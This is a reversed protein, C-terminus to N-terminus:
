NLVISKIIAEFNQYDTASLEEQNLNLRVWHVLQGQQFYFNLEPGNFDFQGRAAKPFVIYTGTLKGFAKNEEVSGPRDSSSIFEKLPLNESNPQIFWDLNKDSYVIHVIDLGPNSGESLNGGPEYQFSFSYKNVARYTPWSSTDVASAQDSFKFTSLIQDLTQRNNVSGTFSFTNGRYELYSLNLDVKNTESNTGVCSSVNQGNIKLVALNNQPCGGGGFGTGCTIGVWEEGKTIKYEQFIESGEGKELIWDDPPIVSFKVRPQSSGCNDFTNSPLSETLSATIISSPSPQVQGLQSKLRYSEWAFFSLGLALLFLILILL